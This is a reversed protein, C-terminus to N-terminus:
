KFPPWGNMGCDVPLLCSVNARVNVARAAFLKMVARVAVAAGCLVDTTWVALFHKPESFTDLEKTMPVGAVVRHRIRASIHLPFARFYSQRRIARAARLSFDFVLIKEVVESTRTAPLRVVCGPVYRGCDKRVFFGCANVGDVLRLTILVVPGFRLDACGATMIFGKPFTM